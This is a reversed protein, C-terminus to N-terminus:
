EGGADDVGGRVLVRVMDIVVAAVIIVLGVHLLADM